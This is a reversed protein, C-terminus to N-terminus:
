KIWIFNTKIPLKKIAKKFIKLQPKKFRSSEILFSGPFIYRIKQTLNGKGKGMRIGLPKATVPHVLRSRVWIKNRKKLVRTLARRLAEVQRKTIRTKEKSIIASRGQQFDTLCTKSNSLYIPKKQQRLNKSRKKSLM